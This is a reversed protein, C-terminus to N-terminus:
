GRERPSRVVYSGHQGRSREPRDEEAHPLRPVWRRHGASSRPRDTVRSSGGTDSGSGTPCQRTSWLRCICLGAGPVGVDRCRSVSVLAHTEVGRHFYSHALAERFAALLICWLLTRPALTLRDM